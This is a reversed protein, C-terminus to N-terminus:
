SGARFMLKCMRCRGAKVARILSIWDEATKPADHEQLREACDFVSSIAKKFKDSLPQIM